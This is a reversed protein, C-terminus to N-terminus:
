TIVVYNMVILCVVTALKIWPLAKVSYRWRIKRGLSYSTGFNYALQSGYWDKRREVGYIPLWAASLQSRAQTRKNRISTRSDVDTNRRGYFSGEAIM